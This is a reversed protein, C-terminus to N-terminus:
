KLTGERLQRAARRLARIVTRKGNKRPLRDNWQTVWPNGFTMRGERHLLTKLPQLVADPEPVVTYLAGTLCHQGRYNHSHYQCWGGVELVEAADEYSSAIEENTM